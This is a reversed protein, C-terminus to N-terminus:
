HFLSAPLRGIAQLKSIKIAKDDWALPHQYIILDSASM